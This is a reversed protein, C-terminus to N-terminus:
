NARVRVRERVRVRVRVRRQILESRDPTILAHLRRTM